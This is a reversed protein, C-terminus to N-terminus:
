RNSPKDPACVPLKGGDIRWVEKALILVPSQHHVTNRSFLEGKIAVRAGHPWARRCTDVVHMAWVTGQTEEDPGWACIPSDLTILVFPQNSWHAPENPGWDPSKHNTLTGTLAGPLQKDFQLCHKKEDETAAHAGCFGMILMVAPLLMAIRPMGEAEKLAL